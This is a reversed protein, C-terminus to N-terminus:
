PKFVRKLASDLSALRRELFTVTSKMNAARALELAAAFHLRAGTSDTTLLRDAVCLHGDPKSPYANVADNCLRRALSGLEQRSALFRAMFTLYSSPLDRGLGFIPAGAAYQRKADVYARSIRATDLPGFPAMNAYIDNASLSIPQFVWRLGEVYGPQRSTQHSDEGLIVHRFATAPKAARLQTILHDVGTRINKPEYAGTTIFLRGPQRRQAILMADQKSLADDNANSTVWWFAPSVAVAAQFTDPYHAFAYVAFHGFASHGAIVTYPLTRYRERVWPMLESSLFEAVAQAQSERKNFLNATSGAPYADDKPGRGSQVGVVIMPPVAGGLPSQLLRLSGLLAGFALADEAGVVVLVPFQDRAFAEDTYENPLAILVRRTAGLKASNLSDTTWSWPSWAAGQALVTRPSASALLTVCVLLKIAQRRMQDVDSCPSTPFASTRENCNRM